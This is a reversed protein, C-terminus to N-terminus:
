VSRKKKSYKLAESKTNFDKLTEGAKNVVRYFYKQGKKIGYKKYYTKQSKPVVRKIVRAM